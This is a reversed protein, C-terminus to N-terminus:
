DGSLKRCNGAIMKYLVSHVVLAGVTAAVAFGVV